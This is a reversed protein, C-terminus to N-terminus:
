HRKRERLAREREEEEGADPLEPVLPRAPQALQEPDFRPKTDDYLKLFLGAQLPLRDCAMSLLGRSPSSAPCCGMWGFPGLFRVSNLKELSTHQYRAPPPLALGQLM